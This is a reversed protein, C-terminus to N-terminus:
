RPCEDEAQREGDGRRVDVLPQPREERLGLRRLEVVRDDDHFEAAVTPPGDLAPSSALREVSTIKLADGARPVRPNVSVAAGASRRIHPASPFPGLAM